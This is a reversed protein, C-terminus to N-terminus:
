MDSAISRLGVMEQRRERARVLADDALASGNTRIRIVEGRVVQWHPYNENDFVRNSLWWPPLINLDSYARFAGIRVVRSLSHLYLSVTNRPSIRGSKTELFFRFQNREHKAAGEAPPVSPAQHM